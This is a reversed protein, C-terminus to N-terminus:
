TRTRILREFLVDEIDRRGDFVALVVLSNAEARYLLRYPRVALERFTRIGFRALAPVTRGREPATRLAEARERLRRLVGRADTPSRLAIYAVIAELDEAAAQSWVIRRPREPM